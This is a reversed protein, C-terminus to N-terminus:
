AKKMNLVLMVLGVLAAALWIFGRTPHLFLFEGVSFLIGYTLVVGGM